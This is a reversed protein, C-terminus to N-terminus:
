KNNNDNDNNNNDNNNNINNNNDFLSVKDYCLGRVYVQDPRCHGSGVCWNNLYTTGSPCACFGSTCTSGSECQEDYLCTQGITRHDYCMGNIFIQTPM